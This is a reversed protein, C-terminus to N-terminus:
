RSDPDAHRLLALALVRVGAALLDSDTHENPNHSVGKHSPVFLMGTACHAALHVADHFAGSLIDMSRLGLATSASRLSARVGEDFQTTQMAMLREVALQCGYQPSVCYDRILAECADLEHPDVHRADVTIVANSPITNISSPLVDIKGVTLRLEARREACAYLMEMLGSMARLADRRYQRPMTGAHGAEGTAKVRFWRVGQVASVIGIPVGAQELVPGQEIHAELFVRVNGGLPRPPIDSLKRNMAEVCEAYSLGNTDTSAALNPLRGPEVFAQSGLSGPAFRCGEENAWAIVEIPYRTTVGADNLAAVVELGACVGYAGDLKGGEPQTDIHSGTAVPASEESGARRFFVNGAPDLSVTCGLSTAYRALFARAEIDPETLAQRNVGGEPRAGLTALDSILKMLRPESVHPAVDVRM